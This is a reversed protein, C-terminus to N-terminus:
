DNAYTAADLDFHLLALGAGTTESMWRAGATIEVTDGGNATNGWFSGPGDLDGVDGATNTAMVRVDDGIAVAENVYVWIDGCRLVNMATGPKLGLDGLDTDKAYAHSHAVIGLATLRTLGAQAAPLEATNVESGQVVFFGFPIEDPTTDQESLYSHMDRKGGDHLLGAFAAEMFDVSTQQASM